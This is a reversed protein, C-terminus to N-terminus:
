GPPGVSPVGPTITCSPPCTAAPPGPTPPPPTPSSSSKPGNVLSLAAGAGAAGIILALWKKNFGGRPEVNTQPITAKAQGNEVTVIIDFSGAIGNPRFGSAEAIGSQDTTVTLAMRGNSFRGGPGAAPAAFTVRVGPVPGNADQVQVVFSTPARTDTNHIVRNGELVVIRFGDQQAWGSNLVLLSILCVAILPRFACRVGPL